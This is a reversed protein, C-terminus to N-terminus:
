YFSEGIQLMKPWFLGDHFVESNNTPQLFLSESIPDTLYNKFSHNREPRVKDALNKGTKTVDKDKYSLEQNNIVLESILNGKSKKKTNLLNGLEKWNEKM